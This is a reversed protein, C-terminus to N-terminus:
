QAQEGPREAAMSSSSGQGQDGQGPRNGQDNGSGERAM